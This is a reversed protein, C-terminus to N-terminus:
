RRTSFEASNILSWLLDEFAVARDGASAVHELAIEVERGTPRRAMVREFLRTFARRDDPEEGLLRSLPTEAGPDADIRAQIQDFNMLMMAQGITRPIEEPCLSPDFDNRDAVLDRTSRPPPPFRIEKTPEVKPPSVDPLELARVLAEFLEDGGLRRPAAIGYPPAGREVEVPLRRQYYDTNMILRLLGKVDFGTYAFHGALADHVEPWDHRQSAAMNDVPEFFGRGTLRAWARNAFARAFWPNEPDTVAFALLARRDADPAGLGTSRGDLFTPAMVTGAQTPDELNPMWYEGKGADEVVTPGPDNQSLKTKTRGFFAALGHFQDRTWHDFKHDHCQACQIQLGLFVRSTEAALKVPDAQHFAVFALEPRDAVTGEAALIARVVRDWPEDQNLRDALWGEFPDYDLFTLEPPPVRHRITDSWYSAWSAGFEPRDLLADIARARKDPDDDDLFAHLEEPTPPRGTLDISARRLFVEDTTRGARPLDPSAGLRDAVMADLTGVDIARADPVRDLDGAGGGRDGGPAGAAIWSRILQIQRDPLPPGDPPMEGISVRDWLVSGEPSGPEVVPGLESGLNLTDLTRLDLGAAPDDAGHCRLCRTKFVVRVAEFDPGGGMARAQMQSGPHALVLILGGIAIPLRRM